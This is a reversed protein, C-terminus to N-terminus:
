LGLKRKRVPMGCVLVPLRGFDVVIRSVRTRAAVLAAEAALVTSPVNPPQRLLQLPSLWAPSGGLLGELRVGADWKRSM